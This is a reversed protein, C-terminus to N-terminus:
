CVRDAECGEDSVVIPILNVDERIHDVILEPSIVPEKGVLLSVIKEPALHKIHSALQGTRNEEVVYIRSLQNMWQQLNEEPLPNLFRIQTNATLIGAQSLRSCAEKIAGLTSGWGIIGIETDAAVNGYESEGSIVSKVAELKRLRKKSMVEHVESDASPAGGQTHEMGAAIYIQDDKGPLPMESVGDVTSLYRDFGESQVSEPRRREVVPISEWNPEPIAEIRNALQGDSLVIVPMQYEQALNVAKATLYIAEEVTAPAIVIRPSDGPSGHIAYLLDAQESRSPQGTGPGSRQVDIITVPIEAVVSLNLLESMLAFGPGSTASLTRSGAYSAGICAALSAMEDEMQMAVGGLKPLERMMFELIHSAPTIPYGCFFDVGAALAGLAAAENGNIVLRDGNGEPKATQWSIWVEDEGFSGYGAKLASIMREEAEQSRSFRTKTTDALIDFDIGLTAGIFGIVAINANSKDGARSAAKLPSFESQIEYNNQNIYRVLWEGGKADVIDIDPNGGWWSVPKSSLKIQIWARGGKIEAPFARNAQMYYGSRAASRALIEGMSTGGLGGTGEIRIILPDIKINLM